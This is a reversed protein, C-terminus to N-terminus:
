NVYKFPIKFHVNKELFRINERKNIMEIMRKLENLKKSTMKNGGRNLFLKNKDRSYKEFTFSVGKSVNAERTDVYKNYIDIGNYAGIYKASGYSSYKTNTYTIDFFRIDNVFQSLEFKSVDSQLLNNIDDNTFLLEHDKKIYPEDPNYTKFTNTLIQLRRHPKRIIQEIAKKMYYNFEDIHLHLKCSSGSMNQSDSILVHNQVKEVFGEEKNDWMYKIAYQMDIMRTKGKLEKSSPNIGLKRIYVMDYESLVRQIEEQIRLMFLNERGYVYTVDKEQKKKILSSPEYMNLMNKVFTKYRELSVQNTNFSEVLDRGDKKMLKRFEPKLLNKISFIPKLAIEKRIIDYGILVNKSFEPGTRSDYKSLIDDEFGHYGYFDRIFKMILGNPNSEDPGQYYAGLIFLKCKYEYQEKAILKFKDYSSLTTEQNGSWKCFTNESCTRRSGHKNCIAHNYHKTNNLRGKSKKYRYTDLNKASIAFFKKFISGNIMDFLENMAKVKAYINVIQKNLINYIATKYSVYLDTVAVDNKLVPIGEQNRYEINYLLHNKLNREKIIGLKWGSEKIWVVNGIEYPMSEPNKTYGQKDIIQIARALERIFLEYLITNNHLKQIALPMKIESKNIKNLQINKFPNFSKKLNM